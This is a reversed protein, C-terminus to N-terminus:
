SMATQIQAGTALNPSAGTVAATNAAITPDAATGAVTITDTNGSVVSAVGSAAQTSWVLQSPSAGGSSLVQGAVGVTTPLM